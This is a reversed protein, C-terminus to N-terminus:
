NASRRRLWLGLAGAAVGLGLVPLSFLGGTYPLVKNGGPDTAVVPDAEPAPSPAPAPAPVTTTTEPVPQAVVAALNGSATRTIDVPDVTVVQQLGEDDDTLAVGDDGLATLLTGPALTFVASVTVPVDSAVRNINGTSATGNPGTVLEVTTQTGETAPDLDVGSDDPVSVTVTVGEVGADTAGTTAAANVFINATEAGTEGVEVGVAYAHPAEPPLDSAQQALGTLELARTRIDSNTVDTLDTGELVRWVALQTAAAEAAVLMGETLGGGAVLPTGVSNGTPEGDPGYTMNSVLWAVSQLANADGQRLSLWGAGQYDTPPIVEPPEFPNWTPFDIGNEVCLVRIADVDEVRMFVALAGVSDPGFANNFGQSFPDRAPDHDAAVPVPKALPASSAHASVEFLPVAVLAVAALVAAFSRTSLRM